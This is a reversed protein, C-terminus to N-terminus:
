PCLGEAVLMEKLTDVRIANQADGRNYNKNLLYVRTKPHDAQVELVNDLNDDIYCDLNLARCASGKLTCLMVTPLVHGEYSFYRKLWAESQRKATAGPRSTIFYVDHQKEIEQICTALATVNEEYPQLDAWITPSGAIHRWVEAMTENSYGRYEPFHWRPPNVKDEPEFLDRGDIRITLAAYFPIFQALVGDVDFGAKM